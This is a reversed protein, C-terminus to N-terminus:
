FDIVVRLGAIVATSDGSRENKVVQLDPSVHLWKNVEYNYYVEYGWQDRLHIDAEDLLDTFNDSLANYFAGFGMRDAPRSEMLGTVEVNGFINWHAFQPNKSGGTGGIMFNAKRTPEDPAQWFDQYIYAAIDWPREDDDTNVIGQGPVNVFDHPDNSAQKRTSTGAFLMFYGMNEEETTWIFRHFAAYWTGDDFSDSVSNWSTSTNETGTALIGSQPIEHEDNITTVIGGYLSLGQVAGFWPLASVQANANWFGEQGYGINPFFGTVTDIVDLQGVTAVTSIGFLSFSQSVTLGTLDTDKYSGPSPSLMGTNELVFSGSDASVDSGLRTRAHANISFGDWTGFVKPGDLNVRYDITAGYESNQKVGGTKVGQSYQSLRMGLQIGNEELTKRAGWWDGTLRDRDWIDKSTDTPQETAPAEDDVTAAGTAAGTATTRSVARASVIPDSDSRSVIELVVDKAEAAAVPSSGYSPWSYPAPAAGEGPPTACAAVLGTLSILQLRLKWSTLSYPGKKSLPDSLAYSL